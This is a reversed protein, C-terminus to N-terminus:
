QNVVEEKKLTTIEDKLLPLSTNFSKEFHEIKLRMDKPRYASLQKAESTTDVCNETSLQFVRALEIAFDRKSMGQHSGLNYTGPRHNECVLQIKECLTNISLPSFFVDTFLTLAQQGRLAALLWDSFSKRQSLRSHGFFNTRLVAGGAALAHLEGCYKSYGYYNAPCVDDEAHPGEGDYLQDTSIHVLLAQRERALSAINGVTKVNLQFAQQPNKECEDVNTLAVLNIIADIEIDALARAIEAFEAQDFNFQASKARGHSYVQHTDSLHHVLSTGLLGTAGTVLIKM